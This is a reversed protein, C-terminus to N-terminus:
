ITAVYINHLLLSEGRPPLYSRVEEVAAVQHHRYLSRALGNWSAYPSYNVYIVACEDEKGSMCVEKMKEEEMGVGCADEWVLMKMNPEVKEMIHSVNDMTLTPDSPLSHVIDICGEYNMNILTWSVKLSTCANTHCIYYLRLTYYYYRM